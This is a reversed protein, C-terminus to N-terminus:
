FIKDGSKRIREVHLPILTSDMGKACRTGLFYVARAFCCANAIQYIRGGQRNILLSHIILAVMLRVRFM